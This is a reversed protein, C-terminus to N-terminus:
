PSDKSATRRGVWVGVYYSALSVVLFALSEAM